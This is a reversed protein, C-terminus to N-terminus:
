PCVSLLTVENNSATQKTGAPFFARENERFEFRKIVSVGNIRVSNM